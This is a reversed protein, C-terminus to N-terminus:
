LTRKEREREMWEIRDIQGQNADVIANKFAFYRLGPPAAQSAEFLERLRETEERISESRASETTGNLKRM